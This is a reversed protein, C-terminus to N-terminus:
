SPVARVSGDDKSSHRNTKTTNDTKAHGRWFLESGM